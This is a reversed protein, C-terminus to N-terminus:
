LVNEMMVTDSNGVGLNVYYQGRKGSATMHIERQKEKESSKQDKLREPPSKVASSNETIIKWNEYKEQDCKKDPSSDTTTVPVITCNAYHHTNVQSSDNKAKSTITQNASTHKSAGNEKRPKFNGVNEYRPYTRRAASVGTSSIDETSGVLKDRSTTMCVSGLSTSSSIIEANIYGLHKKNTNSNEKEVSTIKVTEMGSEGSHITNQSERGSSYNLVYHNGDKTQVVEELSGYVPNREMSAPDVIDTESRLKM